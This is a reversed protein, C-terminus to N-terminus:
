VERLDIVAVDAPILRVLALLFAQTYTPATVEVRGTTAGNDLTYTVIYKSM